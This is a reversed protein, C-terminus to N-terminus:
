LLEISDVMECGRRIQGVCEVRIRNAPGGDKKGTLRDIITRALDLADNLRMMGRESEIRALSKRIREATKEGLGSVSELGGGEAFAKLEELSKIGFERYLLQSTKLGVGSVRRLELVTEPVEEKLEEFYGSTGTKTIEVIQNSISKGIGPIRQLEAAGGRAAIESLSESMEAITESALRYSRTKFPNEDKFELLDAIREFVRAIDANDITLKGDYDHSSYKM